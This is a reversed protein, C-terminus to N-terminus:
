QKIHGWVAQKNGHINNKQAEISDSPLANVFWELFQIEGNRPDRSLFVRQIANYHTDESINYLKASAKEAQVVYKVGNKLQKKVKNRFRKIKCSGNIHGYAGYSEHVPKLRLEIDWNTIEEQTYWISLLYSEIETSYYKWEYWDFGNSAKQLFQLSEASMIDELSYVFSGLWVEEMYDKTDNIPIVWSDNPNDINTCISYKKIFQRLSDDSLLSARTEIRSDKLRSSLASADLSARTFFVYESEEESQLSEYYKQLQKPGRFDDFGSREFVIDSWLEEFSEKGFEEHTISEKKEDTTALLVIKKGSYSRIADLNQRFKAQFWDPNDQTQNIKQLFNYRAISSEIEFIYPSLITAVEQASFWALTELYQQSLYSMDIQVFPININGNTDYCYSYCEDTEKSTEVLTHFSQCYREYLLALWAIVNEPYHIELWQAQLYTQAEGRAICAIDQRPLTQFQVMHINSKLQDDLTKKLEWINQKQQISWELASFTRESISWRIDAVWSNHIKKKSTVHTKIHEFDKNQESM